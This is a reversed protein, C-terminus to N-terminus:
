VGATINYIPGLISVLLLGVAGGLVGIMAPGIL